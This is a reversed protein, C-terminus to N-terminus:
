YQFMKINQGFTLSWEQDQLHLNVYKPAFRANIAPIKTVFTAKIYPSENGIGSRQLKLYM